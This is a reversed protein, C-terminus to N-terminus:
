ETIGREGALKRFAEAMRDLAAYCDEDKAFVAFIVRIYGDGQSGYFKGDNCNVLAEKVLYNVVDASSGLKKVNIWFYFGAEPM